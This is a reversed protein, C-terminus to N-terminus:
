NLYDTLENRFIRLAKAMHNEVTKTSIEFHEAIEKTKLQHYRSMIFVKKCKNPLTNLTKQIIEQLECIECNFIINECEEERTKKTLNFVAMQHIKQHKIKNLSENHISRLLYNIVSKNINLEKRKEWLKVYVNQVVEEAEEKNHLLKLSNVYLYYYYTQFFYDFATKDGKKLSSIMSLEDINIEEKTKMQPSM